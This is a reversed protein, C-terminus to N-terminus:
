KKLTKKEPQEEENPGLDIFKRGTKPSEQMNKKPDNVLMFRVKGQETSGFRKNTSGSSDSHSRRSRSSDNDRSNRERGYQSSGSDDKPNFSRRRFKKPGRDDDKVSASYDDTEMEIRSSDDDGYPASHSSSSFAILLLSGSILLFRCNKSIKV